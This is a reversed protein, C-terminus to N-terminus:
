QSKAINTYYVKISSKDFYESNTDYKGFNPNIKFFELIKKILKSYKM